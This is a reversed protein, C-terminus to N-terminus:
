SIVVVASGFTSQGAKESAQKQPRDSVWLHEPTGQISSTVKYVCGGQQFDDGLENMIYIM